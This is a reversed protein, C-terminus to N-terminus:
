TKHFTSNLWSYVANATENDTFLSTECRDEHIVMTSPKGNSDYYYGYWTVTDSEVAPLAEPVVIQVNGKQCVPLLMSYEKTVEGADCSSVFRLQTALKGAEFESLLSLNDMACVEPDTAIYYNGNRDYVGISRTPPTKQKKKGSDSEGPPRDTRSLFVIQPLDETPLVVTETKGCGALLLVASCAAAIVRKM